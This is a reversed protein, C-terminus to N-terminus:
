LVALLDLLASVPNAAREPYAVHGQKGVTEIVCNLSGRRGNKVMDGVDTVSTPEGVICADIAEGEAALAALVRPTGDVGPGEEDGTILFSISGKPAGHAALHESAAAAMCAVATKMDAAGRGYLWGDRIVAGFPDVTWAAADGVPVVDTHGAFCINPRADGLRAYLNDVEGYKMRRVRFGLSTLANALVDLAGADTPTVSPCRMLAQSLLIPDITQM